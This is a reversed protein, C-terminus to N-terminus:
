FPLVTLHTIELSLRYCNVFGIIDISLTMSKSLCDGHYQEDIHAM